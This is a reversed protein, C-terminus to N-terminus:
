AVLCDELSVLMFQQAVIEWWWFVSSCEWFSYNIRDLLGLLSCSGNLIYTCRLLIKFVVEYSYEILTRLSCQALKSWWGTLWMVWDIFYSHLWSCQTSTGPFALNLVKLLSPLILKVGQASLQSMMARAACEAADRVAVVQDSFSVLLFPFM